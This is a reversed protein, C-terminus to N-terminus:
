QKGCKQKCEKMSTFIQGGRNESVYMCTGKECVVNVDAHVNTNNNNNNNNHQNCQSGNNGNGGGGGTLYQNAAGLAVLQTLAGSM